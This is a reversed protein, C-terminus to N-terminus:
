LTIELHKRALELWLNALDISIDIVQQLLVWLVTQVAVGFAWLTWLIIARGRPSLLTRVTAALFRGSEVLLLGRWQRWVPPHPDQNSTVERYHRGM